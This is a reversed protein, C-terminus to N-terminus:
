AKGAAPLWRWASTPSAFHKWASREALLDIGSQIRNIAYARFAGWFESEPAARTSM